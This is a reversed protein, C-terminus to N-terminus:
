SMYFSFHLCHVPLSLDSMSVSYGQVDVFHVRLWAEMNIANELVRSQSLSLTSNLEEGCKRCNLIDVIKNYCSVLEM